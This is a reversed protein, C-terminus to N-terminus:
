GFITRYIGYVAYLIVLVTAIIVGRNEPLEEGTIADYETMIEGQKEETELLRVSGVHCRCSGICVPNQSCIGRIGYGDDKLLGVDLIGTM